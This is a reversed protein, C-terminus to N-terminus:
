LMPYEKSEYAEVLTVLVDLRTGELSDPTSSLLAEIEKLAARYDADTKISKIKMPQLDDVPFLLVPVDGQNGM